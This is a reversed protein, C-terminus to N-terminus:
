GYIFRLAKPLRRAWNRENHSGRKDPRWMLTKGDVLGKREFVRAMAEAAHFAQGERGGADIYVKREGEWWAEEVVKFVAGRGVWLAPSMSMVSGFVHPYRGFGYLAMLGGLSSGGLMTNEPGHLVRLDEAVIKRLHGTIWKMTAEGRGHGGRQITWPSLEEMRSAGGHHIGIVIPVVKGKAARDDLAQHLHWGGSFSGADGYLNQGDFMYAVPYRKVGHEYGPPLYVTLPYRGPLGPVEFARTRHLRGPHIIKSTAPM